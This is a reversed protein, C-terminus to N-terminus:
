VHEPSKHFIVVDRGFFEIDAQWQRALWEFTAPAFFRVHTPDNKYHWRSFAQQDEVMKTMLGLYGGPKLCRWLRNLELNPHHLHEVVETATIFDYPQEFTHPNPAYIPDYVEMAFGSEEFMVSLTPGPGCGFDLGRQGTQLHQRLPKYLRGLFNRYGQDDPSNEHQDYLQKEEEVTPLCATEVFVLQCEDCGFYTRLHDRHYFKTAASQCLPCCEMNQIIPRDM